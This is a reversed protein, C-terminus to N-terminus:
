CSADTMAAGFGLMEQKATARISARHRRRDTRPAKWAPAEASAHRRDRVHEVDARRRAAHAWMRIRGSVSLAATAASATQLFTRRSHKAM